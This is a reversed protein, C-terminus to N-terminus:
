STGLLAQRGKGARYDRCGVSVVRRRIGKEWWGGEELVVASLRGGGVCGSDLGWTSDKMQLGRKADHGYVVIEREAHKGRLRQYKNWFKTWPLLGMKRGKPSERDPSPVHTELDMTRMTMVAVPDQKDMAVGPVLGAHVVSLHGLGPLSGVDLILPCNSLYSIHERSLSKALALDTTSPLFQSTSNFFFLSDPLPPAPYDQSSSQVKLIKPHLDRNLLIIRDEHNGRVCSANMSQVLDLVKSSSPGKAVLDGTLILHDRTSQFDIKELLATMEDYCGHVDGMIVLRRPRSKRGVSPLLKKDLTALQTMDNFKHRMTSGYKMGAWGQDKRAEPELSVALRKHEEFAAWISPVTYYIITGILILLVLMYKRNRRSMVTRALMSSRSPSRDPKSWKHRHRWSNRVRNVLPVYHPSSSNRKHCHHDYANSMAELKEDAYDSALTEDDSAWEEVTSTDSSHRSPSASPRSSMYPEQQRRSPTASRHRPPLPIRLFPNGSDDMSNMLLTPLSSLSRSRWPRAPPPVRLIPPTSSHDLPGLTSAFITCYEHCAHKNNTTGGAAVEKDQCNPCVLSHVLTKNDERGQKERSVNVLSEETTTPNALAPAEEEEEEEQEM